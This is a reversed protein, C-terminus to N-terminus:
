CRTKKGHEHFFHHDPIFVPHENYFGVMVYEEAHASLNVFIFSITLSLVVGIKKIMNGGM